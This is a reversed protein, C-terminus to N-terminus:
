NPEIQRRLIGSLTLVTLSTVIWGILTALAKLISWLPGGRDSLDCRDVQHLDVAPVILDLTYLM